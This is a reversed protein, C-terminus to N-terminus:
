RIDNNRILRKFLIIICCQRPKYYMYYLTLLKACAEGEQQDLFIMRKAVVLYYEYKLADKYPTPHRMRSFTNNTTVSPPANISYNAVALIIYMNCLIEKILVEYQRNNAAM